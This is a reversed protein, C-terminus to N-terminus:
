ALAIPDAIDRARFCTADHTQSVIALRSTALSLRPPLGQGGGNKRQQPDGMFGCKEAENSTKAAVM